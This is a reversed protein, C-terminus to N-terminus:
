VVATERRAGPATLHTHNGFVSSRMMMMMKMMEFRGATDGHLPAHASTSESVSATAPRLNLSPQMEQLIRPSTSAVAVTSQCKLARPSASKTCTLKQDYTVTTKM